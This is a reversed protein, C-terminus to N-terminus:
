GAIIRDIAVQLEIKDYAATQMDGGSNIFATARGLLVHFAVAAVDVVPQSAAPDDIDRLTLIVTEVLRNMASCLTEFARRATDDLSDYAALAAPACRLDSTGFHERYSTPRWTCLERIMDPDSCAMEILMLAEGFHNLYDTSLGVHQEHQGSVPSDLPVDAFPMDAKFRPGFDHDQDM